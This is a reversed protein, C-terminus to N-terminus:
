PHLQLGSGLKVTKPIADMLTEKFLAQKTQELTARSNQVYIKAEEVASEVANSAELRLTNVTGLSISIGFLDLMASQVMRTSHRYLGIYVAVLAVVRVGYGSPHVDVPLARTLTGCEQCLLQHLRHEVIIPNIPPIEVIQFAIPSLM